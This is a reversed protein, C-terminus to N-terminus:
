KSANTHHLRRGLLFTISYLFILSVYYHSYFMSIVAIVRHRILQICVTPCYQTPPSASLQWKQLNHMKDM